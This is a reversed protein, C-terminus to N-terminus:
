VATVHLFVPFSSPTVPCIFFSYLPFLFHFLFYEAHQKTRYYGCSHKGSAAAASRVGCSAACLRFCGLFCRFASCLCLSGRFIVGLCLGRCFCVSFLDDYRDAIKRVLLRVRREPLNILSINLFKLLDARIHLDNLIFLAVTHIGERRRCSGALEGIQEPHRKRLRLGTDIRSIHPIHRIDEHFSAIRVAQIVIDHFHQSRVSFIIADRHGTIGHPHPVIHIQEFLRSQDIFVPRELIRGCPVLHDFRSLDDLFLGSLRAKSELSHSVLGSPHHLIQVPRIARLEHHFFLISAILCGKGSRLQFFCKLDIIVHFPFIIHKRGIRLHFSGIDHSHHRCILKAHTDARFVPPVAGHQFVAHIKSIDSTRRQGCSRCSGIGKGASIQHHEGLISRVFLHLRQKVPHFHDSVARHKGVHCLLIQHILQLRLFRVSSGDLHRAKVYPLVFCPLRIKGRDVLRIHIDIRDHLNGHHIVLDPHMRFVPYM